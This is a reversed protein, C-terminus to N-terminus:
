VNVPLNFLKKVNEHICGNQQEETLHAMQEDLIKQSNPWSADTHPYDNAWMLCGSDVVELNRYATIDDQFTYSLNKMIYESPMKTLKCGVAPGLRKIAHDARYAYHPIWGADAEAIVMKLKPNDEFVGGFLFVGLVDQVGRVINMFGNAPHGRKPQLVEKVGSDESTLIHFCVPLDLDVACQWLANYDEHDYDEFQPRGPMMMGVMGMAKARKFDEIASDVSVVATQALGFLRDPAGACFGELWRNYANMCAEKYAYDKHSCMVMGISAYIIEACVGDQDQVEARFEPNWAANPLEDFTATRYKLLDEAPVGAAGLLALPIIDDLGPINFISGGGPGEVVTPARDRFKPEIFDIYTNPPEVIHSDASIGPKRM